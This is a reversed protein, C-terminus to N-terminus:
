CCSRPTNQWDRPSLGLQPGAMPRLWPQLLSSRPRNCLSPLGDSVVVSRVRRDLGPAVGRYDGTSTPASLSSRPRLSSCGAFPAGSSTLPAASRHSLSSIIAGFASCIIISSMTMIPVVVALSPRAEAPPTPSATPHTAKRFGRVSARGRTIPPHVASNTPSWDSPPAKAEKNAYSLNKLTILVTCARDEHWDVKFSHRRM